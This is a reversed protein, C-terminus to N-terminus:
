RQSYYVGPLQYKKGSKTDDFFHVRAPSEQEGGLEPHNVDPYLEPDFPVIELRKSYPVDEYLPYYPKEPQQGADVKWIEDAKALAEGFWNGSSPQTPLTVTRTMVPQSDPVQGFPSYSLTAMLALQYLNLACFENDTSLM